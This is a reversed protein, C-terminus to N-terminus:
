DVLKKFEPTNKVKDFDAEKLIERFAEKTVIHNLNQKARQLYILGAKTDGALIKMRGLELLTVPERPAKVVYRELVRMAEQKKKLRLLLQSEEYLAFVKTYPDPSPIKQIRRALPLAYKETVSDLEIPRYNEQLIQNLLNAGAPNKAIQEESLQILQSLRNKALAQHCTYLARYTQGLRMERAYMRSPELERVLLNYHYVASDFKGESQYLNGLWYYADMMRNDRPTVTNYVDLAKRYYHKASDYQKVNWYNINGMKIYAQGYEPDLAILRHLYHIASDNMSGMQTFRIALFIYNGVNDPEMAIAKRLLNIAESRDGEEWKVDSMVSYADGTKPNFSLAKQAFQKQLALKRERDKGDYTMFQYVHALFAYAASYTSDEQIALKLYHEASDAGEKTWTWIHDYYAKKFYGYAKANSSGVRSSDRYYNFGRQASAFFSAGCLFLLILVKKM